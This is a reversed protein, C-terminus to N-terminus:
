AEKVEVKLAAEFSIPEFLIGDAKYFKSQFEVWHLRLAHLFCEMLDMCLLVGFTVLLFIYFGIFATLFSGSRIASGMTNDFFVKALQSHALSLAWLRLYSATHSLSGLVFEITEILQHVFLDGFGEGHAGHGGEGGAAQGGAHAVGQGEAQDQRQPPQEINFAEMPKHDEDKQYHIEEDRKNYEGLLPAAMRESHGEGHAAGGHPAHHAPQQGMSLILPKPLLMTPVCILAIILLYFQIESQKVGMEDGYLPRIYSGPQGIDFAGVSLLFKIFINIIAPAESTPYGNPVDYPTAWKFFILLVMYGFTCSLFLIQPIWEFIFDLASRFHIANIMKLMTGMTMQSVGLVIAMKMKFSNFFTLENQTGYWRPDLGFPYVCEPDERVLHHMGHEKKYCTGFLNLPISMFDNYIFGCYFAFFGMMALLYRASLLAAFPSKSKELEDKKFCLYLGFAFVIGGHGIDGFMVGFLFPFTAITFLGPNVERYRPIGYTNVIEQFPATFENTRFFTPPTSDEPRQATQFEAGAIYPKRKQLTELTSRVKAEFELPCWCNGHYITNQLKLMNLNHYITKEKLIYLRLNEIMSWSKAHDDTARPDRYYVKQSFNDLLMDIHNRTVDLVRHADDRAKKLDHIKKEFAAGDEPIGYKHAGFSDAIKNLRAKIVDQAGGPYAILFVTKLSKEDKSDSVLNDSSPIGQNDFQNEIDILTSWVMGLTARFLMRRFRQSDARDIVGALYCFKISKNSVYDIQRGEEDDAMNQAQLGADGGFYSKTKELVHINEVLRNFDDVASDYYKIQSNISTIREELEAELDELYTVDAKTRKSLSEKLCSIFAKPDDCREIQKNFRKMHQEISLIRLELEECRKIHASYPRTLSQEHQNLDVFQIASLEGLENIIEWASERPMVINYYGMRESRFLSM